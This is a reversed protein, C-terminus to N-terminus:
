LLGWRVQSWKTQIMDELDQESQGESTDEVETYGRAPPLWSVDDSVPVPDDGDVKSQEVAAHNDKAIQAASQWLSLNDPVEGGYLPSLLERLGLVVIYM